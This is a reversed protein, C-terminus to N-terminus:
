EAVGGYSMDGFRRIGSNWEGVVYNNNGHSLCLDLSPSPLWTVVPPSNSNDHWAWPRQFPPNYTRKIAVLLQGDVDVHPPQATSMEADEADEQEVIGRRWFDHHLRGGRGIERRRPSLGVPALRSRPGLGSECTNKAFGM